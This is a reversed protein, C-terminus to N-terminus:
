TPGASPRGPAGCARRRRRRPRGLLRRRPRRRRLRWSRSAPSSTRSWGCRGSPGTPAWTGSWRPAPGPATGSCTTSATATSTVSSRSAPRTSRSSRATSGEVVVVLNVDKASGPGHWVVDDDGDGDLDGAVPRYAYTGALAQKTFGATGSSRWIVDQTSGPRHEVVDSRGDGDLDAAVLSAPAAAQYRPRPQAVRTGRLPPLRHLGAAPAARPRCTVIGSSGRCCCPPARPTSPPAPRRTRCRPPRISAASPSSGCSSTPSPRSRPRRCRWAPSTASSSSAWRGRTSAPATVGSCSRRSAAPARRGRAVSATSPSTTPSTTGAGSTRTTPRSRGSVAPVQSPSDSNSSSWRTTSSPWSSTPRRRPASGHRGPAGPGPAAPIGPAAAAGAASGTLRVSGASTTDTVLHVQVHRVSAPGDIEYATAGGMWVPQSHVGPRTGESGPDPAEDDTFDAEFWATWSGGVVGPPVRARDARRSPHHGHGRVDARKRRLPADTPPVSRHGSPPSRRSAPPSSTVKANTPDPM